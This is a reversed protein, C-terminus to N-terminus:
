RCSVQLGLADFVCSSLMGGVVAPFGLVVWSEGDEVVPLGEGTYPSMCKTSIVKTV